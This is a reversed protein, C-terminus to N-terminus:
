RTTTRAVLPAVKVWARESESRTRQPKARRRRDVPDAANASRMGQVHYNRGSPELVERFGRYLDLDSRATVQDTRRIVPAPPRRAIPVLEGYVVFLLSRQTAGRNGKRAQQPKWGRPLSGRKFGM